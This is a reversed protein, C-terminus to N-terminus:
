DQTFLGAKVESGASGKRIHLYNRESRDMVLDVRGGLRMEQLSLFTSDTLTISGAAGAGYAAMNSNDTFVSAVAKYRRTGGHERMWVIRSNAIVNNRFDFDDGDTEVTWIGSTSAGYVLCNRMANRHSTGGEAGWFVVANRVNYFVDHDLVLGHGNAIVGVHLPMTQEDGVFVCQKVLLDDLNKGGRWIPYTRRIQKPSKYYFDLGGTFRLGQVTAHNVEIQIGNGFEGAEDAVLPVATVVTPMQQPHWAPDDPLVEARIVLRDTATYAKSNKFLATQSLVYLGPAVIVESSKSTTDGNIRRAAETLSRLPQERTGPNTDVGSAANVFLQQATLPGIASALLMWLPVAKVLRAAVPLVLAQGFDIHKMNASYGDRHYRDLLKNQFPRAAIRFPIDSATGASVNV